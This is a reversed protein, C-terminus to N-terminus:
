LSSPAWGGLIDVIIEPNINQLRSAIMGTKSYGGGDMYWHIRPLNKRYSDVQGAILDKKTETDSPWLVRLRGEILLYVQFRTYASNLSIIYARTARKIQGKQTTDNKQQTM